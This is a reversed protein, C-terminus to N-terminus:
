GMGMGPGYYYDQDNDAYKDNHSGPVSATDLANKDPRPTDAKLITASDLGDQECYAAVKQEIEQIENESLHLRRFLDRPKIFQMGQSLNNFFENIENKGYESNRFREFVASPEDMMVLKLKFGDLMSEAYASEGPTMKGGDSFLLSTGDLLKRTETVLIRDATRIQEWYDPKGKAKAYALDHQKALIDVYDDRMDRIKPDYVRAVRCEEIEKVSFEGRKGCSYGPGAFNGHTPVLPEWERIPLEWGKENKWDFSGDQKGVRGALAETLLILLTKNLKLFVNMDIPNIGEFRGMYGGLKRNHKHGDGTGILPQM